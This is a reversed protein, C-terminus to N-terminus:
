AKVRIIYKENQKAAFTIINGNIEYIVKENSSDTLEFNEKLMVSCKGGKHSTIEAKVLTKNKWDANVEFAGEACIGKFSGDKWEDPLAPLIQIYGHNSQILMECIGAVCGYNADIQFAGYKGFRHYDWLNDYLRNKIMKNFSYYSNNGYGLRAWTCMLQAYTWGGDPDSEAGIHGFNKNMLSVYAAKKKEETDFLNGPFLGLLNSLHRHKRTDNVSNIVTENYWEKVQGSEGIEIPSLKKLTERWIIAEETDLHLVESAEITDAYLQWILSQEYTNSLTLAGIEPSQAIPMIKKGNHEILIEEYMRVQERMMPYIIDRLTDADLSYEYYDYCNQMLWAVAAPCWGWAAIDWGPATFGFPNNQTHAMFGNEANVYLKSTRKGPEKLSSIYRILPLACEQLNANSSLWYNMQENINFHMDSNWPAKPFNNWIGQLNTPLKSNERSSSILLYRGYQFILTELYRKEENSLKDKRYAKLLVNTPKESFQGLSLTMRTYLSSYDEIHRELVKECGLTLANKVNLLAKNSVAKANEGSRYYYSISKDENYFKNAYNTGASFYIAASKANKVSLIGNNESIIANKDAKLSFVASFLLGNDSLKGEYVSYAINESIFSTKEINHITDFEVSFDLKGNECEFLCVLVNDPNSVFYRRKYKVGKYSFSVESLANSLNLSRRYDKPTHKPLAPFNIYMEGMPQFGNSFGKSLGALIERDFAKGAKVRESINKYAAYMDDDPNGGSYNDNPNDSNRGGEWLTEENLSIHERRIEGWVTAGIIGNGIPLTEEQWTDHRNMKAAPKKYHLILEKM